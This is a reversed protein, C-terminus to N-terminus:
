GKHKLYGPVQGVGHKTNGMAPTNNTVNNAPMNVKASVKSADSGGKKSAPTGAATQKFKSDHTTGLSPKFTGNNKAPMNVSM